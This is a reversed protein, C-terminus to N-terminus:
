LLIRGAPQLDRVVKKASIEQPRFDMRHLFRSFALQPQM